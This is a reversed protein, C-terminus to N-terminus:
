AFPRGCNWCFRDGAQNKVGCHSCFKEENFAFQPQAEQQLGMYGRNQEEHGSFPYMPQVSAKKRRAVLFVILLIVALVVVALLVIILPNIGYVIEKVPNSSSSLGGANAASNQSSTELAAWKKVEAQVDFNTIPSFGSSNASVQQGAKVEVSQGSAKSVCEVAGELVKLVSVSNIYECVYVTGKIFAQYDPTDTLDIIPANGGTKIMNKVNIKVSGYKLHLWKQFGKLQKIQPRIRVFSEANIVKQGNQYDDLMCSSEEGTRIVMGGKIVMGPKLFHWQGALAAQDNEAWEVTGSVWGVEGMPLGEPEYEVKASTQGGAPQSQVPQSSGGTGGVEYTYGMGLGGIISTGHTVHLVFCKVGSPVQFVFEGSVSKKDLYHYAEPRMQGYFSLHDKDSGMYMGIALNGIWTEAANWHPYANSIDGTLSYSIEGKQGPTLTPPMQYAVTSQYTMWGEQASRLKDFKFMSTGNGVNWSANRMSAANEAIYEKFSAEKQEYSQGSAIKNSQTVVLDGSGASASYPMASIFLVLAVYVIFQKKLTIEM